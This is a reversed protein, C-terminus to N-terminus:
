GLPVCMCVQARTLEDMPLVVTDQVSVSLRRCLEDLQAEGLQDNVPQQRTSPAAAAAPTSAVGRTFEAAQYSGAPSGAENTRTAGIIPLAALLLLAGGRALMGFLWAVGGSCWLRPTSLHTDTHPAHTHTHIYPPRIHAQM